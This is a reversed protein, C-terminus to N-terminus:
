ELSSFSLWSSFPLYTSSWVEVWLRKIHILSIIKLHFSMSWFCRKIIKVKGSKNEKGLTALPFTKQHDEVSTSLLRTILLCSIIFLKSFAEAFFDWTLRFINLCNDLNATKLSIFHTRFINVRELKHEGSLNASLITLLHFSWWLDFKQWKVYTPFNQKSFTDLYRLALKDVSKAGTTM